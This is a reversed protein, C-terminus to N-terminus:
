SLPTRKAYWAHILLTQLFLVPTYFGSSAIISEVELPPLVAADRGYSAHFKEVEEAPIDSQRLMRLWVDLLSQYAATSMDSALDASVLYGDPRLRSAIERFFNRRAELQMFFHSVLLCTAADFPDSAPLSDLYGEHFTCRSAIGCEETRQRCIDLMPKAPEVATFQWQPFAQALDILESGTGVGVCLIRAEAPLESLIVRILLHLADRMPALKAFRKDYSSAREKDFVISSKQNQM